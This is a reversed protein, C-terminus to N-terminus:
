KKEKRINTLVSKNFILSMHRDGTKLVAILRDVTAHGFHGFFQGLRIELSPSGKFAGFCSIVLGLSTAGSKIIEDKAQNGLIPDSKIFQDVINDM